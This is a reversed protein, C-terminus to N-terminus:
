YIDSSSNFIIARPRKLSLPKISLLEFVDQPSIGIQTLVSIIKTSFIKTVNSRSMSMFKAVEDHTLGISFLFLIEHEKPTLAQVIQQEVDTTHLRHHNHRDILNAFCETPNFWNFQKSVSNTGIVKGNPMFIPFSLVGRSDFGYNFGLFNIHFLSEETKIVRKRIREVQAIFEIDDTPQVQTINLGILEKNPLQESAWYFINFFTLFYSSLNKLTVGHLQQ